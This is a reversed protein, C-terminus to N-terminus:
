TKIEFLAYVDKFRLRFDGNQKIKLGKYQDENAAKREDGTWQGEPKRQDATMPIFPSNKIINEFQPKIDHIQCM